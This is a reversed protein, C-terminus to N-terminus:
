ILQESGKNMLQEAQGQVNEPHPMHLGDKSLKNWQM